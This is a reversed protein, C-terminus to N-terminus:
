NWVICFVNSSSWLYLYVTIKVFMLVLDHKLCTHKIHRLVKLVLLDNADWWSYQLDCSAILILSGSFSRFYRKFIVIPWHSDWKNYISIKCGECWLQWCALWVRIIAVCFPILFVGGASKTVVYLTKIDCEIRLFWNSKYFFIFSSSTACINISVSSFFMLSM